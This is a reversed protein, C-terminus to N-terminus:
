SPPMPQQERSQKLLYEGSSPPIQLIGGVGIAGEAHGMGGVDYGTVIDYRPGTPVDPASSAGGVQLYIIQGPQVDIQVSGAGLSRAGAGASFTHSGPRILVKTYHGGQMMAIVQGGDQVSLQMKGLDADAIVVTAPAATAPYSPPPSSMGGCGPLVAFLIALELGRLKM